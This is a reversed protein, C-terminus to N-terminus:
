PCQDVYNTAFGDITANASFTVGPNKFAFAYNFSCDIVSDAGGSNVSIYAESYDPSTVYLTYTIVDTSLVSFSGSGLGSQNVESNGNKLIQLQNTGTVLSNNTWNITFTSSITPTPTQTPEPTPTPSILTSCDVYDLVEGDTYVQAAWTTGGKELLFWQGSSGGNHPSTLNSNDYFIMGVMPTAYGPPAYVVISTSGACADYTSGYGFSSMNYAIALQTPTPTTTPAPTPTPTPCVTQASLLGSGPSAIYWNTGAYAYWGAAVPTSTGLEFLYCGNAAVACNSTYNTRGIVNDWNYCAENGSTVSYSFSLTYNPPTSTPTSPPTSPPTSAPTGTQTRTPTNTPTQSPLTGCLYVTQLVGNSNPLVAYFTGNYELLYWGSGGPTWTNTLGPNTYM